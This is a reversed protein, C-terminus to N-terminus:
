SLASAGKKTDYKPPEACDEEQVSFFRQMDLSILKSLDSAEFPADNKLCSGPQIISCYESGCRDCWTDGEGKGVPCAALAAGSAFLASVTFGAVIALRIGSM